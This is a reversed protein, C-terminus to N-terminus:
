KSCDEAIMRLSEVHLHETDRKSAEDKHAITGVVEVKHGVHDKLDADSGDLRYSNRSRPSRAVASGTSAASTGSTPMGPAATGSTGTPIGAATTRQNPEAIPAADSAGNVLATNSLLFGRETVGSTGTSSFNMVCGTVTIKEEDGAAVNWSAAWALAAVMVFIRKM